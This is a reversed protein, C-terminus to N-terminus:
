RRRLWDSAERLAPLPDAVRLVENRDSRRFCSAVFDTAVRMRGPAGAPLALRETSHRFRALLHDVDGWFWRSRVGTRYAHVPRPKEGTAAAVLLAPFDVGADVALQLSGWFRGNIEMLCPTGTADDVKYEVMAVGRWNLSKLLAASADLLPADPAVSERYVSVGGSPPKERLRRHCFTALVDGDWLLLFAGIGDGTIREQVLVPYAEPPMSEFRSRLAAEDAAHVVATKRRAGGNGVISRSPKLVLPFQLGAAVPAGHWEQVVVQRPVRIGVHEALRAVLEKDCAREFDARDPFPVVVDGLDKERGLVALLSPETVPLLIEVRRQRILLRLATLYREPELLPDPVSTESAAYRSAGALSRPRVSCVHVTCGARGLSRVIALAARQEGDTVLVSYPRM